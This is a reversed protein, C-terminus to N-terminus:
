WGFPFGGWEIPCLQEFWTRNEEPTYVIEEHITDLAAARRSFKGYKLHCVSKMFGSVISILAVINIGFEVADV